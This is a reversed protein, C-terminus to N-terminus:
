GRVTALSKEVAVMRLQLEFGRDIADYDEMCWCRWRRSDIAFTAAFEIDLEEENEEMM